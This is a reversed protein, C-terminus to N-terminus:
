YFKPSEWPRVRKTGKSTKVYKTQPEERYYNHFVDETQIDSFAAKLCEMREAMEEEWTNVQVSGVDYVEYLNEGIKRCYIENRLLVWSGIAIREDPISPFNLEMITPNGCIAISM